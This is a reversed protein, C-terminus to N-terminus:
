QLAPSNSATCQYVRNAAVPASSDVPVHLQMAHKDLICLMRVIIQAHCVLMCLCMVLRVKMHASEAEATALQKSREELEAKLNDLDGNLTNVQEQASTVQQAM